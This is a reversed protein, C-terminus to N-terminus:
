NRCFRILSGTKKECLWRDAPQSLDGCKIRSNATLLFPPLTGGNLLWM